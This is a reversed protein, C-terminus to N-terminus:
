VGPDNLSLESVGLVVTDEFDITVRSRASCHTCTAFCEESVRSGEGGWTKWTEYDPHTPMFWWMAEGVRYEHNMFRGREDGDYDSAIHTQARITARQGCSPCTAEFLIYNFAAM